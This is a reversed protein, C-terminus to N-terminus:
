KIESSTKHYESIWKTIKVRMETSYQIVAKNRVGSTTLAKTSTQNVALIFHSHIIYIRKEEQTGKM